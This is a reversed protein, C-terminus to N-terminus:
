DEFPEVTTRSAALFADATLRLPEADVLSERCDILEVFKAYISGYESPGATDREEGDVILHAGGDRLSLEVGDATVIDITWTERGSHRWDFVAALEGDAVPSSFALEAAIPMQRNEPVFLEGARLVLPGPFIRTAISLANIGPDFVGFGGARWIWQQGPHWKRVDERWVIRMRAIRRGALLDAAASVAPNHQAHWTTFLSVGRDAAMRELVAVEGLTIGPPKELLSHKGADLCDRAIEFRIAPPTCIAVADLRESALMARHDRYTAIDERESIRPSSAAALEFRPNAAIAPVHQDVAIKGFGIIAIRLPVM